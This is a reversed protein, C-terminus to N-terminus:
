GFVSLKTHDCLTRYFSIIILQYNIEHSHSWHFISGIKWPKPFPEPFPRCWTVETRRNLIEFASFHMFGFKSVRDLNQDLFRQRGVSEPRFLVLGYWPVSSLQSHSTPPYFFHCCLSIAFPFFAFSQPIRKTGKSGWLKQHACPGGFAGGYTHPATQVNKPCFKPWHLNWLGSMQSTGSFTYEGM